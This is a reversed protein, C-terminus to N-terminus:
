EADESRVTELYAEVRYLTQSARREKGIYDVGGVFFLITMLIFLFMAGVRGQLFSLVAFFGSIGSLGCMSLYAITYLRIKAKSVEIEDRYLNEYFDKFPSM